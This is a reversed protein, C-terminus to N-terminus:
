TTFVHFNKALKNMWGIFDQNLAVGSFINFYRLVPPSQQKVFMYSPKAQHIRRRKSPPPYRNYVLLLLEVYILGICSLTISIWYIPTQCVNLFPYLICIITSKTTSWLLEWTNICIFTPYIIVHVWRRRTSSWAQNHYITYHYLKVYVM